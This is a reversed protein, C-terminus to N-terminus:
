SAVADPLKTLIFDIRKILDNLAGQYADYTNLIEARTKDVSIAPNKTRGLRDLDQQKWDNTSSLHKTLSSIAANLEKAVEAKDLPRSVSENPLRGKNLLSSSNEINKAAQEVSELSLFSEMTGGTTFMFHHAKTGVATHPNIYGRSANPEQDSMVAFAERPDYSTPSYSSSFAIMRNNLESANLALSHLYYKEPEKTPQTVTPTPTPTPTPKSTPTPTPTPPKAPSACAGFLIVGALLAVLIVKM